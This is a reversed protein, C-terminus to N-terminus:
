LIPIQQKPNSDTQWPIYEPYPDDDDNVPDVTNPDTYTRYNRYSSDKLEIIYGDSTVGYGVMCIKEDDNTTICNGGTIHISYQEKKKEETLNAYLGCVIGTGVLRVRSLRTQDDLYQRLQNLQTNTLVQNPQFDPFFSQTDM